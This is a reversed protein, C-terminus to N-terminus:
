YAAQYIAYADGESLPRPNNVLLRTQKMAESALMGLADEPIGVDRLREPVDLARAL